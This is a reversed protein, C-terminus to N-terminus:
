VRLIQTTAFILAIGLVTALVLKASTKERHAEPLLDAAGLYLFEGAFFALM